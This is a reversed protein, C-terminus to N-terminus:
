SDQKAAHATRFKDFGLWTAVGTMVTAITQGEGKDFETCNFYLVLGLIVGIGVVKLLFDMLDLTFVGGLILQHLGTIPIVIASFAALTKWETDDFNKAKFYLTFMVLLLLVLVKLLWPFFTSPRNM